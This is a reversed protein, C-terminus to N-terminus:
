KKKFLGIIKDIINRVFTNTKDPIFTQLLSATLVVVGAFVMLFAFWCGTYTCNWEWLTIMAITWVTAFIPVFWSHLKYMFRSFWSPELGSGMIM